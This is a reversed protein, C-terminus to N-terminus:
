DVGIDMELDNNGHNESDYDFEVNADFDMAEMAEFAENAHGDEEGVESEMEVEPAPVARAEQVVLEPVNNKVPAERFLGERRHM